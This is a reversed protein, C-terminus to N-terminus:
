PAVSWAPRPADGAIVIENLRSEFKTLCLGRAIQDPALHLALRASDAQSDLWELRNGNGVWSEEVFHRLRAGPEALRGRRIHSLEFLVTSGDVLRPRVTMTIVPWGTATRDQFGFQFEGHRFAVLLWTMGRPMMHFYNAELVRRCWATVGDESLVIQFTGRREMDREMRALEHELRALKAHNNVSVREYARVWFTPQYCVLWWWAVASGVPFGILPFLADLSAMRLRAM